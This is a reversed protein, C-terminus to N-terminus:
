PELNNIAQTLLVIIYVVIFILHFTPFAFCLAVLIKALYYKHQAFKPLSNKPFIFINKIILIIMFQVSPDGLVPTLQSNKTGM